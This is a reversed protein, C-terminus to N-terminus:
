FQLDYGFDRNDGMFKDLSEKDLFTKISGDPLKVEYIFSGKNNEEVIPDTSTIKTANSDEDDSLKSDGTKPEEGNMIKNLKEPSMTDPDEGSCLKIHPPPIIVEIGLTSWVFDIFGNVIKEIFCLLPFLLKFPFASKYKVMDKMDKATYTPLIAMFPASFYQSMDAIEVSHDPAAFSQATWKAILEPKFKIGMIEMIGKPTFFKMIWSFSLFEVIKSPLTMPNTLSKFFDMIWKVVDAIIKVPLTVLGLILKLIPQTNANLDFIKNKLDKLKEKLSDDDPNKKIADELKEKALSLDEPNESNSLDDVEKLLQQNDQNIYIYNYDVGNIFEGTSYWVTEAYKNNPNKDSGINNNNLPSNSLPTKNLNNPNQLDSNSKKSLDDVDSKRDQGNPDKSNKEKNFILKLPPKKDLANAMKMEIGFSLDKGFISFPIFGVGDLLFQFDGMGGAQKLVPPIKKDTTPKKNSVNKVNEKLPSAKGFNNVFVHDKLPSSKFNSKITNVYNSGGGKNIMETKKDRVKKVNEFTKLSQKNLFTFSDGMKESIIDVIFAMPNSFLKLLKQISPVIKTFINVLLKIFPVVAGIAHPLKYWGSGGSGGTKSDKNSGEDDSQTNLNTRIGEIIYYSETDTDTMQFRKVIDINQPNEPDGVGYKGKSLLENESLKSNIIKSPDIVVGYPFDNNAVKLQYLPINKESLVFKPELYNSNSKDIEIEKKTKSYSKLDITYENSKGFSPLNSLNFEKDYTIFWKTIFGDKIEVLTGDSLSRLDNSFTNISSSTGSSPTYIKKYQYKDGVLQVNLNTINKYPKDCWMTIKYDELNDLKRENPNYNWNELVYESVNNYSEFKLNNKKVSINFKINEDNLKFSVKNKVYSKIDVSIESEGKAKEYGIKTTPDIRVVKMDYDSEPDIWLMGNLGALIPDSKAKESFIQFPKFTQKMSEPFAPSGGIPNYFSCKNQGYNSLNELHSNLNLNGMITKAAEDKDKQELDKALRLNIQTYETFYRRFTEIEPSDFGNIVPDGEIADLGTILNKEDTKYKKLKYAPMLSGSEPATKAVSEMIGNTFVYNPTGLTPWVYQGDPFFWKGSRFVWEARKYPTEINIIDNGSIGITKLKENPNIPVGKSDFIGFIIRDPKYKDYPDEDEKLPEPNKDKISDDAPLDIYEYQYQITPDYEGTSYVVNIIKWDKGMEKLKKNNLLSQDASEGSTKNNQSNDRTVSGDNEVKLSGGVKSVKDLKALAEKIALGNKYGVAKPRKGAGINNVPKESKHRLPNLSVLPMIRAVIDEINVFADIVLKAVELYPKQTEFISQLTSKEFAKLGVGDFESSVSVQSKPIKIKGDKKYKSIDDIPLKNIEAFKKAVMENSSAIPSNLNKFITAKMMNDSIGLNGKSFEILFDINPILLLAPNKSGISKSIASPIGPLALSVHSPGTLLSDRYLPFFGM